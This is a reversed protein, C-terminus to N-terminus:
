VDLLFVMGVLIGNSLNLSGRIFAINMILDFAIYKVYHIIDEREDSDIEGVFLKFLGQVLTGAIVLATASFV